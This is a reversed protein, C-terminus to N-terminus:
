EKFLREIRKVHYTTSEAYLTTPRTESLAETYRKQLFERTPSGGSQVSAKRRGM